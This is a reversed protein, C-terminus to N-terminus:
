DHALVRSAADYEALALEIREACGVQGCECAFPYTPEERPGSSSAFWSRLNRAANENEWHRVEDLDRPESRELLDAFELEVQSLLENPARTGDVEVVVSGHERALEAVRDAYLRDKVLRAELAREPDSTPMPRPSLIARQFAATPILFLANADDPLLDPVIQPGEVIVAPQDPLAPLDELVYGFMLRSIREFDAAQTEPSWELWQVDPSPQAEGAREAHEYWFADIHLVRLGHRTALARALTTKGGGTGGGIFLADPTTTGTGSSRSRAPGQM